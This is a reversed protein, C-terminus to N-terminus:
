CEDPPKADRAHQPTNQPALWSERRITWMEYEPSFRGVDDFSGISLEVEESKPDGGVVRSGCHPCFHRHYGASSEWSALEGTMEVQHRFFVLFPNFSSSHAKRCTM